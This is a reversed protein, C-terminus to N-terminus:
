NYTFFITLYLIAYCHLKGCRITMDSTHNCSTIANRLSLPCTKCTAVCEYHTDSPCSVDKMWVVSGNSGKRNYQLLFSAGALCTIKVLLKEDNWNRANTYGLQQCVLNAFGSYDVDMDGTECVTGWMKNCYIEVRGENVYAGDVLRVM